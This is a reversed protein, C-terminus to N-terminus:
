VNEEGVMEYNEQFPVCTNLQLQNVVLLVISDFFNKCKNASRWGQKIDRSVRSM